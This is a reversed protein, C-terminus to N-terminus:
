VSVPEPVSRNKIALVRGNSDNIHVVKYDRAPGTKYTPLLLAPEAWSPEKRPYDWPRSFGVTVLWEKAEPVYEVEELGLNSLKEHEFVEQVYKLATQVAAKVEM